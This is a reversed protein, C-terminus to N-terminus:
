CGGGGGYGGGDCHAAGGGHGGYVGCGGTDGGTTSYVSARRRAAVVRHHKEQEFGDACGFVIISIISISMVFLCILMISGGSSGLLDFNAGIRSVERLIRAM